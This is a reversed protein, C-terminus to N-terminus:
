DFAADSDDGKGVREQSRVKRLRLLVSIRNFLLHASERSAVVFLVTIAQLVLVFESPVSTELEMGMAGTQLMAFFLAYLGTGIVGNNAVIAIMVGDWGYNADIGKVFRHQMGGLVMIAGALGALAGSVLMVRVYNKQNDCGGVKAFLANRGMVKWEYGIKTYNWIFYIVALAAVALFFAFNLGGFQPFWGGRNIMPTMPSYMKEDIMPGSILYLTFFGALFNLMLTTIFEDMNFKVRLFAAIGAYFAGAALAVVILLPIMVPAPLDVWLGVATVGMAGILFQGVQGLNVAGSAFGIAASLGTLLLPAAKNLTTFLAFRSFLSYSFLQYYSAAPNYGQLAMIIFGALFAVIVGIFATIIQKKM